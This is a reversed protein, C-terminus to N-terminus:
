AYPGSSFFRIFHSLGVAVIPVASIAGIASLLLVIQKETWPIGAAIRGIRKSNIFASYFNCALVSCVLLSSLIFAPRPIWVVNTFLKRKNKIMVIATAAIATLCGLLSIRRGSSLHLIFFAAMSMITCCQFMRPKM